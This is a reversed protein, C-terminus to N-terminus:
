NAPPDILLGLNPDKVNPVLAGPSFPKGDLALGRLYYHDTGIKQYYFFGTTTSSKFMQFPLQLRPDYLCVKDLSNEPMSRALVDISNPYGGNIQRYFEVSKVASDLCDQAMMTRLNDYDGGRRVFGFYFLSSYFAITFAIGVGRNVRCAKRWAPPEVAGLHYCGCRVSGRDFSHVFAGGYCLRRLRQTSAPDPRNRDVDPTFEVENPNLAASLIAFPTIL